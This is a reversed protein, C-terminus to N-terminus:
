RRLNRVLGVVHVCVFSRVPKAGVCFFFLSAPSTLDGDSSRVSRRGRRRLWSGGDALLRPEFRDVASSFYTFSSVFDHGSLKEKFCVVTAIRVGRYSCDVRTVGVMKSTHCCRYVLKVQEEHGRKGWGGERSWDPRYIGGGRGRGPLGLACFM